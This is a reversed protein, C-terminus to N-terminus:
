NFSFGFFKVIGSNFENCKIMMDLLLARVERLLDDNDVIIDDTVDDTVDSKMAMPPETKIVDVIVTSSSISVTESNIEVTESEELEKKTDSGGNEAINTVDIFTMPVDERRTRATPPSDPPPSFPPPPPISLSPPSTHAPPSYDPEDIVPMSKVRSLDPSATKSRFEVPYDPAPIPRYPVVISKPRQTQKTKRDEEPILDPKEGLISTNILNVVNEYDSQCSFGNTFTPGMTVPRPKKRDRLDSERLVVKENLFDCSSAHSPGSMKRNNNDPGDKDSTTSGAETQDEQTIENECSRAIDPLSKATLSATWNGDIIDQLM